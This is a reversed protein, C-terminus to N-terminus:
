AGQQVKLWSPHSAQESNLREEEGEAGGASHVCERERGREGEFSFFLNFSDLINFYKPFNFSFFFSENRNQLTFVRVCKM